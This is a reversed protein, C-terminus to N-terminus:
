VQTVHDASVLMVQLLLLLLFRLLSAKFRVASQGFIDAERVHAGFRVGRKTCCATRDYFLLETTRTHMRTVSPLAM